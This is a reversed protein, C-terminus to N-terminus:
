FMGSIPVKQRLMVTMGGSFRVNFQSLILIRQNMVIHHLLFHLYQHDSGDEAFLTICTWLTSIIKCTGFGLRQVDSYLILIQEEGVM